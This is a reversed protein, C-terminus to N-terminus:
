LFSKLGHIILLITIVGCIDNYQRHASADEVRESHAVHQLTQKTKAM